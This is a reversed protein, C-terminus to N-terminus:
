SQPPGRRFRLDARAGPAHPIRDFHPDTHLRKQDDDPSKTQSATVGGESVGDAFVPM